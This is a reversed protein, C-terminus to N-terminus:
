AGVKEIEKEDDSLIIDRISAANNEFVDAVEKSFEDPTFLMIIQKEYSVKLLEAAMNTRNDDSVRGLPSDVVLSCNKGSAEHIALTFSYALAMYETASLGGTMENGDVNYVSMAYSDDIEISGFTNKKWIMSDFRDWTLKQIEDKIENMISSQVKGLESSLTRFVKVQNNLQDKSSAKAELNDREEKKKKLEDNNIKIDKENLGHRLEANKIKTDYTSRESEVKSVNFESSNSDANNSLFSSINEIEEEKKKIEDIYYKESDNIEKLEKPFVKCKQVVQELSGKIETLFHSTASSVDLQDLLENLHKIADGDIKADCVPCKAIHNDLISRVQDKDISPPLTGAEQKENIIDLTAKARPYFNLAVLYERIFIQKKVKFSDYDKQLDILETNLENRKKTNARIPAYGTLLDDAEKFKKKYIPLNAEIDANEDELRKIEKELAEIETYITDDGSKIKAVSRAKETSRENLRSIANTLLTVQSINHISDKIRKSKGKAFYNKLNEGDFFYYDFITEDFYQKVLSQVDGEEEYVKTNEFGDNPTVKIKLSSTGPVANKIGRLPDVSVFFVQTREFIITSEGDDITITVKANLPEKENSQQVLSSNIIPLAKEEDALYSEKEYLCWLIGNLFTTKGTGNKARLVFLNSDNSSDFDVAIKKYQRYNEFEISKIKIMM